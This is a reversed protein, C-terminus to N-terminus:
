PICCITSSVLYESNVALQEYITFMIPCGQRDAKATEIPKGVSPFYAVAQAPRCAILFSITTLRIAMGLLKDDLFSM